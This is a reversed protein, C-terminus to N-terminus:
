DFGVWSPTTKPNRMSIWDAENGANAAEILNKEDPNEVIEVQQTEKNWIGVCSYTTGLDIGIVPEDIDEIKAQQNAITQKLEETVEVM